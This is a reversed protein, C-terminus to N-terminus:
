YPDISQPVEVFHINLTPRNNSALFRDIQDRSRPHTVLWVEHQESLHWAWNWTIGPESGRYPNCGHGVLLIRM